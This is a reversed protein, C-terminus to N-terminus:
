LIKSSCLRKRPVLRKSRSRLDFTACCVFFQVVENTACEANVESNYSAHEVVFLFSCLRMRPVNSAMLLCRLAHKCPSSRSWQGVHRRLRSRANTRFKQVSQKMHRRLWRRSQRFVLLPSSAHYSRIGVSSKSSHVSPLFTHRIHVRRAVHLSCSQVHVTGQRTNRSHTLVSCIVFVFTRSPSVMFCIDPLVHGTVATTDFRAVCAGPSASCVSAGQRFSFDVFFVPILESPTWTRGMRGSTWPCASSASKKQSFEMGISAVRLGARGQSQRGSAMRSGGVQPAQSVLFDFTQSPIRDQRATDTTLPATGRTSSVNLPPRAGLCALGALVWALFAPRCGLCAPLCAGSALWCGLGAPVWPLSAPGLAPLCGLCAPLCALLPLCTLVSFFPCGCVLISAWM